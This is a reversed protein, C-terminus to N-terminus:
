KSREFRTSPWHWDLALYIVSRVAGAGAKRKWNKM